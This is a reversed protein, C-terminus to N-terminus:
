FFMAIPETQMYEIMIRNTDYKKAMKMIEDYKIASEVVKKDQLIIWREAFKKKLHNYNESFWEINERSVRFKEASELISM